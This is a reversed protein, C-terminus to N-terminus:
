IALQRTESCRNIGQQSPLKGLFQLNRVPTSDAQGWLLYRVGRQIRDGRLFEMFNERRLKQLLALREGVLEHAIGLWGNSVELQVSEVKIGTRM